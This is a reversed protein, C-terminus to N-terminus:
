HRSLVIAPMPLVADEAYGCRLFLERVKAIGAQGHKRGVYVTNVHPRRRQPRLPFERGRKGNHQWSRLRSDHPPWVLLRYEKEFEFQARDKFRIDCMTTIRGLARIVINLTPSDQYSVGRKAMAELVDVFAARMSAYQEAPDYEVPVTYAVTKDTLAHSEDRLTKLELCYDGGYESWLSPDDSVHSFSAVHLKLENRPDKSERRELYFSQLRDFVREMSRTKYAPMARLEDVMRSLHLEGALVCELYDSLTRRDTVRIRGTTIIGELGAWGTYHAVHDPVRFTFCNEIARDIQVDLADRQKANLRVTSAHM